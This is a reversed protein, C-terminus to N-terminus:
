STMWIKLIFPQIKEELIVDAKVGGQKGNGTSALFMDRNLVGKETWFLVSSSMIVLRVSQM